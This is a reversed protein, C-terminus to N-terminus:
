ALPTQYEANVSYSKVHIEKKVIFKLFSQNFNLEGGDVLGIELEPQMLMLYIIFRDVVKITSCKEKCGNKKTKKIGRSM